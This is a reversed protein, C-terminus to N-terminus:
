YMLQQVNTETYKHAYTNNKKKVQLNKIKWLHAHKTAVNQKPKAENRAYKHM